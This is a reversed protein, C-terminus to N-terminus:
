EEDEFLPQQDLHDPFDRNFVFGTRHVSMQFVRSRYVPVKSRCEIEVAVSDCERTEPDPIPTFNFELAVKRKSADTPRNMCDQAINALHRKLLVAIRGNDLEELSEFTLDVHQVSM